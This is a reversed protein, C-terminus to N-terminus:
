KLTLKYSKVRMVPHYSRKMHALNPLNMDSEKNIYRLGAFLRRACEQDLFQYLGKVDAFAKEYNLIGMEANLRTAIGVVYDAVGKLDLTSNVLQSAEVVAALRRVRSQTVAAQRPRRDTPARRSM